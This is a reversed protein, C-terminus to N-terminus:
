NEDESHTQVAKTCHLKALQGQQSFEVEKIGNGDDCVAIYGRAFDAEVVISRAEADLANRVLEEIVSEPTTIDCTSSVRARVDDPLLSIRFTAEAM